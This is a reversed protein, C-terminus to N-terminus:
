KRQTNQEMEYAFSLCALAFSSATETRLIRRGLGVSRMGSEVALGAEEVSFGGESGIMLSITTPRQCAEVAQVLSCQEEGEYCFLPLEVAVAQAVAERFYLLESVQPIIGRGCQKAAEAAIRQWRQRKKESDKKDLRVICRETLVPVIRAVGCEVAKQVVHDFKDGKILAQYLVATYPPESAASQVSLVRALVCEGTSLITCAYENREMDCVTIGDGPHMRLSKTIHHADDGLIRVTKGGADDAGIQCARVFFRPM